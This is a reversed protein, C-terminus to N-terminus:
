CTIRVKISYTGNEIASVEEATIHIIQHGELKETVHALYEQPILGIDLANETVIAIDSHETGVYPKIYLQEGAKILPNGSKDFLDLNPYDVTMTYIGGSTTKAKHLSLLILALGGGAAILLVIVDLPRSIGNKVPGIIGLVLLLIGLLLQYM